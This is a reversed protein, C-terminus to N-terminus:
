SFIYNSVIIDPLNQKSLYEEFSNYHQEIAETRVKNIHHYKSDFYTTTEKIQVPAIGILYKCYELRLAEPNDKSRENRLMKQANDKNIDKLVNYDVM